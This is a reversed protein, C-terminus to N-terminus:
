VSSGGYEKAITAKYRKAKKPDRKNKQKIKKPVFKLDNLLPKKKLKKRM